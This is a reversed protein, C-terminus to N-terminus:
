RLQESAIIGISIVTWYDCLLLEPFSDNNTSAAPICHTLEIREYNAENFWLAKPLKNQLECFLKWM